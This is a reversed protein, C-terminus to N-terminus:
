VFADQATVSGSDNVDGILAADISRWADFGAIQRAALRQILTTDVATYRGDADADGVYAAVHVAADGVAAIPADDATRLVVDRLEVVSARGATATWPVQAQVDLLARGGAPVTLASALDVRVRIQRLSTAAGDVAEPAGTELDGTLGAALTIGTVDLQTADYVVALEVRRAGAAGADVRIPWAHALGAAAAAANPVAISQGPGRVADALSLMAGVGTGTRWTRVADGGATGDADGDLAAGNTDVVGGARGALTMRLEGAPLAGGTRVFRLGRADADVIVSGAVSRGTAVERVDVDATRIVAGIRTAFVDLSETTGLAHNFRVSFGSADPTFSAVQLTAATSGLTADGIEAGSTMAIAVGDPTTGVQGAADLLRLVFAGPGIDAIEFRGDAGTTAQREDADLTADADADLWVTRGAVGSTGTEGADRVGDGDADAFVTGRVTGLRFNGFDIEGVEGGAELTVTHVGPAALQSPQPTASGGADGGGTGGGDADPAQAPLAAIAQALREFDLRRYTMQTNVVNDNEDDGDVIADSTGRLLTAFEGTTLGRGLEAQAIQQALAAAGAMFASAQSTGQMTRVGGNASAGNFRAGPAFADVLNPDRQSFAAIHDAGTTYNTAGGAVRWPGGYDGAWTAGVAIVAPDSGPYAVGLEGSPYYHNGAASLVIVNQRALAALEDGLGYRSAEQTWAAGDGLSLNVVGIDYADANAVVWQLARELYAFSGAGGDEFVKLAILDTGPAVGGYRADQSGIVSAIHSGHGSRDSADADGNAFDWQFVIRDATGDGDADPGFYAHDRDIGTDIVVTRVGRGDLPGWAGGARAATIGTVALADTMSRAAPDLGRSAGATSGTVSVPGEPAWTIGCACGEVNLAIDSASTTLTAALSAAGLRPSTQTWGAQQVEAVVWRGAAVNEFVYGGDEGTVAFREGTDLRGNADADLFITWGSLGREGDDRRGDGDVDEYKVGRITGVTRRNGFALGDVTDGSTMVIDLAGDGGPATQTWGDRAEERIRQAGPGIGVIRFRGDADTTAGREGADRVGDDDSDVFISWGALGLEDPGRAGDGDVDHFKVGEVVGLAFRGFHAEGTTTDGLVVEVAGSAPLTGIWGAPLEQRVRQ